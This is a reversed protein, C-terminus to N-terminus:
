NTRMNINSNQTMLFPYKFPKIYNKYALIVFDSNKYTIYNDLLLIKQPKDPGVGIYKIFHKLQYIIIDM